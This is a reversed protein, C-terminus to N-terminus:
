FVCLDNRFIAFFKTQMQDIQYIKNRTKPDRDYDTMLYKTNLMEKDNDVFNPKELEQFFGKDTKAKKMGTM